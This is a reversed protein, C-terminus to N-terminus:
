LWQVMWTPMESKELSAGKINLAQLLSQTVGKLYYIDSAASKGKWNNDTLQGAAYLCLHNTENYEGVNTTGYTKGFEFLRLNNNRRNMNFSIVELATHLM